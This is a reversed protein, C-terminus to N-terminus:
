VTGASGDLGLVDPQRRLSRVLSGARLGTEAMALM